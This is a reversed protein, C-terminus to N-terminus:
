FNFTYYEDCLECIDSYTGSVHAAFRPDGAAWIQALEDGFVNGLRHAGELDERCLPVDGNVRVFLDRQLHWCPFRDLPSIDGIKRPPLRGCFHDYKEIIVRGTRAHWDRYFADLAPETLDCRVAQVYTREPIREVTRAAFEQAEAFGDGRVAEYVAPDNSDLGVIVTLRDSDLRFLEDRAVDNWGVGSTEVLAQLRPRRLVSRVLDVARPHLAIEGWLSLHVVAEPAFRDIRAVLDDFRDADMALGPALVDERMQPYPSYAVRQAEQEIVQVSVFRPRTRHLVRRKEVHAAWEDIEAPADPALRECLLVNAATDVALHLRLLRQDVASLETEVDLRNIDKQIIPFLGSRDVPTADSALSRLHAVVRGSVLEPGLGAPYGDAFTYEARYDRHRELMRRTLERNLFPQDLFAFVIETEGDRTEEALLAALGAQTLPGGTRLSWEPPVESLSTASHVTVHAPEGMPGLRSLDGVWAAVRQLTSRGDIPRRLYEEPATNYLCVNM